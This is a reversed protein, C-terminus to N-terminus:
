QANEPKALRKLGYVDRFLIGMVNFGMPITWILGIGFPIMSIFTLIVIILYCVIVELWYQGMKDFASKVASLTDIQKTVILPLAFVLMPLTLFLFILFTVLHLLVGIFGHPLALNTIAVYLLILPLWLLFLYFLKDKVKLCQSFILLLNVSLGVSQRVGVMASVALVYWFLSLEFCAVILSLVLSLTGEWFYAFSTITFTLLLSGGSMILSLIFIPMKVGTVLAWAESIVHSITLKKPASPPATDHSASM